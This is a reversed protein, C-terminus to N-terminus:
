FPNCIVLFLLVWAGNNKWLSNLASRDILAELMWIQIQLTPPSPASLHGSLLQSITYRLLFHESPIVSPLHLCLCPCSFRRLWRQWIIIGFPSRFHKLTAAYMFYKRFSIKIFTKIRCWFTSFLVLGQKHSSYGTLHIKLNEHIIWVFYM